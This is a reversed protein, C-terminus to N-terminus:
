QTAFRQPPPLVTYSYLSPPVTDTYPNIQAFAFGQPPPLVTYSYLSPLVTYSYLSPLVTDTYPNIQAFAVTAMRPSDDFLSFRRPLPPLDNTSLLPAISNDANLNFQALLPPWVHAIIIPPLRQAAITTVYM